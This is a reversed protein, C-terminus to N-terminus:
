REQGRKWARYRTISMNPLHGTRRLTQALWNHDLELEEAIKRIPVDNDLIRRALEDERGAIAMWRPDSLPGPAGASPQRPVTRERVGRNKATARRPKETPRLAPRLTVGESRLLARVRNPTVFLDHEQQLHTVISPIAREDDRYMRVIEETLRKLERNMWESRNSAVYEAERFARRLATASVGASAALSEISRGKGEAHREALKKLHRESPMFETPPTSPDGFTRRTEKLASRRRYPLYYRPAKARLRAASGVSFGQPARKPIEGAKSHGTIQHHDLVSEVWYWTAPFGLERLYNVLSAITEGGEYRQIVEDQPIQDVVRDIRMAEYLGAEVLRNYLTTHSVGIEAALEAIPEGESHRQAYWHLGPIEIRDNGRSM